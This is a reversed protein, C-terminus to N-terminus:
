IPIKKAMYSALDMFNPYLFPEGGWVYFVQTKHAVEDVLEMYKEMPVIKHAEEAAKDGKLTGAIGRQGCMVCRLNCLPTLKFTILPLENSKGEPNNYDIEKAKEMSLFAQALHLAKVPNKKFLKYIVSSNHKM